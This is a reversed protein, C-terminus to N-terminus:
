NTNKFIDEFYKVWKGEILTEGYETFNGEENLTFVFRKTESPNVILKNDKFEAKYKAAGTKYFPNYYYVADKEDYYIVTHLQLTESNLDITLINGDLGYEIKEFASVKNTVKGDKYSMSTGIWEGVLFKLNSMKEQRLTQSFSM